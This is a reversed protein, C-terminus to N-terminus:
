AFYYHQNIGAACSALNMGRNLVLYKHGCRCRLSVRERRSPYPCGSLRRVGVPFCSPSLGSLSPMVAALPLLLAALLFAHCRHVPPIIVPFCFFQFRCASSPHRRCASPIIAVLRLSSPLCASPFLPCAPFCLLPLFRFTSRPLRFNYNFLPLDNKRKKIM